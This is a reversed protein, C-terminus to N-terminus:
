KGNSGLLSVHFTLGLNKKGVDIGLNVRGKAVTGVIGVSSISKGRYGGAAM